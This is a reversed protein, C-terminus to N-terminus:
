LMKSIWVSKTSSTEFKSNEIFSFLSITRRSGQETITGATLPSSAM